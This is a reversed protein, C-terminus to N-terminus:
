TRADIRALWTDRADPDLPVDLPTPGPLRFRLGDPRTEVAVDSLDRAASYSGRGWVLGTGRPLVILAASGDASLHIASPAPGHPDHRRWAAMAAQKTDMRMPGTLGLRQALLAAGILGLALLALALILVM